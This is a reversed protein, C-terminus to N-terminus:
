DCITGFFTLLEIIDNVGIIDDGNLDGPCPNSVEFVCTGDEFFALPDFNFATPYTCGSPGMSGCLSLDTAFPSFAADDPDSCGPCSTLAQDFCARIESGDWSVPWTLDLTRTVGESEGDAQFSYTWLGNGLILEGHWTGFGGEELLLESNGELLLGVSSPIASGSSLDVRFPVQYLCSGDDTSSSPCPNFNVAAPDLCQDAEEVAQSTVGQCSCDEQIKDEDTCADGDNCDDGQLVCMDSLVSIPDYNCALINACGMHLPLQGEPVKRARYAFHNSPFYLTGRLAGEPGFESVLGGNLADSEATGWGILTGGDDLRQISGQSSANNGDPHPWSDVLTATGAELNLEYEAGRAVQLVGNTSNDFLLIRNESLMQADHQQHFFDQPSAFEFDSLPGGLKWLLEGSEHDIMVVMDMNRLNLLIDGNEQTQFSNHHYADLLPFQWPCHSCWNPPIHDSARWSWIVNGQADQEQLLCDLVIREASDADPISDAITLEVNQSGMLLVTGDERIELDHYDAQAGSFSIIGDVNLASDLRQWHGELQDFWVLEGSPHHDWNFGLYPHSANYVVDGSPGVIVPYSLNSSYRPVTIIWGPAFSQGEEMLVEMALEDVDQAQIFSINPGTMLLLLWASALVWQSPFCLKQRGAKPVDRNMRGQAMLSTTMMGHNKM